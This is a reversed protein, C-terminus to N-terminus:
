NPSANSHAQRDKWSQLDKAITTTFSQFASALIADVAKKNNLSEKLKDTITSIDNKEQEM